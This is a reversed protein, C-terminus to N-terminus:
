STNGTLAVVPGANTADGVDHVVIDFRTTGLIALQDYEAYRETLVRASFGRRDGMTAALPFNGYLMVVVEDYATAAAPMAQSVVIRDGLYSDTLQGGLMVQTNGGAARTIGDFVINKAIKSCLWNAGGGRVAAYLPLTGRVTDLDAAIYEAWQDDGATAEITGALSESVKLRDRFGRIGGYTSTGDGDIMCQDEKLAFSYAFEEALDSAVDIIADEAYDTSFRTLCGMKRAVLNVDDWSKDSETIATLEDVFYATVGGARRPVTLTDSGMTVVRLLQRAVGYEERLDIIANEMETPVLAGGKTFVSETMVRMGHEGCWTAAKRDGLFMARAWKGARYADEESRFGRLKGTYKERVDVYPVTQPLPKANNRKALIQKCLDDESGGLEIVERALEPEGFKEGILRIEEVEEARKVAAEAAELRAKSNDDGSVQDDVTVTVTETGEAREDVEPKGKEKLMATGQKNNHDRGVGVSADAPVAVFSVELPEWDTIRIQDVGEARGEVEKWARISYGVSIKSRIGDLVDQFIEQARDSKSFRVTARGKGGEVWAREVRGIQDRGNHDMLLAAGDNMRSLDPTSKDHALVEDWVDGFFQRRIPEDSSFAIDVTRTEEEVHERKISAERYQTTSANLYGTRDAHKTPDVERDRRMMGMLNM